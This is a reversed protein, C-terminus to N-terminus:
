CGMIKAVTFLGPTVGAGNGMRHSVSVFTLSRILLSALLLRNALDPLFSNMPCCSYCSLPYQILDESDLSVWRKPKSSFSLIILYLKLQLMPVQDLCSISLQKPKTCAEVTHFVVFYFYRIKLFHTEPKTSAEFSPFHM